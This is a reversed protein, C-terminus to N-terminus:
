SSGQSTAAAAPNPTISNWGAMSAVYISIEAEPVPRDQEGAGHAKPSDIKRETGNWCFYNNLFNLCWNVSTYPGSHGNWM